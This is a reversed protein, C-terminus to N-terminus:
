VEISYKKLRYLFTDRTLGLMRAARSKNGSTKDLAQLMLDVEVSELKIGAEPLSFPSNAPKTFVNRMEHPLNTIDIERSSFLILMRECFNKLERVNGPWGYQNIQKMAAPTFAPPTLHLKRVFERFFHEMLVPVDGEREQLNPLELPIINLRYYLDARFAGKGVEEALNKSSAAIVRVDYNRASSYGLPQVKGTEIFSLLKVQLALDLESVEDLFLTGAGAKAVMGPNNTDAGAFAGQKHGFLYSEAHQGSLTACNITIFERQKRPSQQHIRQAFLDKGTGTGGTVLVPVDTKAVLDATRLVEKIRPSQGIIETM